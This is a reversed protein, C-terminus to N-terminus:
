KRKFPVTYSADTFIEYIYIIIAIYQALGCCRMKMKNSLSFTNFERQCLIWLDYVESVHYCLLTHDSKLYNHCVHLKRSLKCILHIDTKKELLSNM